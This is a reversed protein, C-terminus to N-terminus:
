QSNCPQKNFRCRLLMDTLIYGKSEKNPEDLTDLAVIRKIKAMADDIDREEKDLLLYSEINIDDVENDVVFQFEYAGLVSTVSYFLQSFPNLNCITVAPFNMESERAYFTQSNTEFQTYEVISKIITYFCYGCSGLFVLLWITKLISNKTRFVNPIGHSTSQLIWQRFVNSITDTSVM